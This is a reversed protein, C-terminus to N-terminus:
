SQMYGHEVLEQDTWGAKIFEAYPTGKALPTMVHTLNAVANQAAIAPPPPAVITIQSLVDSAAKQTDTTIGSRVSYLGFAGLTWMAWSPIAPVHYGAQILAQDIGILVAVAVTAYTKKGQTFKLLTPATPTAL